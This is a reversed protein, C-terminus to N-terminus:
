PEFRLARWIDDDKIAGERLVVAETGSVDVVTSPLREAGGAPPNGADIILDIDKATDGLQALIKEVSRECPMGTINASTTTIPGGFEKAFATCFSNDPIRIGITRLGRAVGTEIGEKKKLILTLAGPWLFRALVLPLDEFVAYKEAAAQDAVICHIPKQEDRKKIKYVKAVAADSIADAGLGYLTDTPYLVVGGARLVAAARRASEEVGTDTLKLIEM